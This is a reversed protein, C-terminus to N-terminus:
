RSARFIFVACVWPLIILAYGILGFIPREYKALKVATGRNLASRFEARVLNLAQDRQVTPRRCPRGLDTLQPEREADTALSQYYRALRIFNAAVDRDVCQAATERCREAHSLLLKKDIV